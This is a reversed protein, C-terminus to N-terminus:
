KKKMLDQIKNIMNSANTNEPNLELSKKYSEIALPYNKISLYGEGLSDFANASQPNEKANLVFVKLAENIRSNRLLIYGTNNLTDEFNWKPNKEKINYYNKEANPNDKKSFEFIVSEEALSYADTLNRDIIAAIHNVIQYQAPFFNYGNSMLVIAMNNQPFIRYASVNGGSFGYSPINNAKSIEWGYGFFDKKNGYDFSQWMIDKTKQNLFDNKILHSSWKLFAPLTIALGNGPYAKKGEIDTSKQYEKTESNYNYKIIRNPIKELANSSFVVQNKVDPFQNKLIFNEFYQGTIKEIIMALLM